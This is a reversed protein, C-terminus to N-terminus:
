VELDVVVPDFVPMYRHNLVSANIFHIGDQQVQGYAEHIHGFVHIRPKIELVRRLLDECGVKEGTITRDLIGSPPGHTMLLDTGEPILQWHQDIEEGRQRNFAWDFFWPQIPSGWIKLGNIETGSDNLYIVNKPVLGLFEEPNREALFDHNGAILVKHPHPQDELWDMFRTIEYVGGRGSIDGAHVLLDGAPVTIESHRNHTDSIFVIRM